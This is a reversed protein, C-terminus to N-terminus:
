ASQSREEDHAPPAIKKFEVVNEAARKDSIVRKNLQQLLGVMEQAEQKIEEQAVSLPGGDKGTIEQREIFMGLHKALLELGRLQDAHKAAPDSVIATIKGIVYNPDITTIEYSKKTKLEEILALIGENKLLNAAQRGPYSTVYGARLVAKNKSFDHVYEHCFRRQRATLAKEVAALDEKELARRVSLTAPRDPNSPSNAKGTKM